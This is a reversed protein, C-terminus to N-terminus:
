ISISNPVISPLQLSYPMPRLKNRKHIEVEIQKLRLQFNALVIDTRSDKFYPQRTNNTYYGLTDYQVGSLLYGFSLQYLAVDLPPLWSLFDKKSLKDSQTPPTRYLTGSVSPLYSMLPFQAFNVGAHQASATYIILSVVKVLYEFDDILYPQNPDNTATLGSMGQMAAYKNNVLENVWQQLEYDQSVELNREEINVGQYYLKLYNEVYSQIAQWLELTDERFPFSPIDDSALGREKFLRDPFQEDFRWEKYAKVILDASGDHGTSLVSAVVGGPVILSHLASDNIEITFRFHPKLLVFLPHVEPLTRHTAVIAPEVTLHCAGLHAVAEHQIACTNQVIFKAVQWKTGDTDNNNNCDNPTFIPTSEADHTQGLQIAVAQLAGEPPYGPPPTNNWYFLAIPAVPFRQLEHLTSGEIDVFQSYDCAYLLGKNAAQELSQSSDGIVQQFTKDSIPMKRLLTTLDLTKNQRNSTNRVAKLNTTNFGAIQMYSFYWDEFCINEPDIDNMWDKTEIHLNLPVPLKKFLEQYDTISQAQLYNRGDETSLTDYMANKLFATPGDKKFEQMVTKLGQVLKFLDKPLRELGKIAKGIDSPVEALAIDELVKAEYDLTFKEGKPVDASMPIPELYSFMYNYTTKAMSLQFARAEKASHDVHQPLSPIDTVKSTKM